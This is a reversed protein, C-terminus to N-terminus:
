ATRRCRPACRITAHPDMPPAVKGDPYEIAEQLEHLVHARFDGSHREVCDFVAEDGMDYGSKQSEIWKHRDIERIQLKIFEHLTM